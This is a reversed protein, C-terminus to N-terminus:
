LAKYLDASRLDISLVQSDLPIIRLRSHDLKKLMGVMFAVFSRKSKAKMLSADLKKQTAPSLNRGYAMYVHMPLDTFVYCDLSLASNMDALYLTLIEPNVYFMADIREKDLMVLMRRTADDPTVPLLKHQRVSGPLITALFHAIRLPTKLPFQLYGSKTCVASQAEYMPVSSFRILKERAPTKLLGLFANLQGQQLQFLGRDVSLEEWQPTVNADRFVESVYDILPGKPGHDTKSVVPHYEIYGVQITGAKAIRPPWLLLLLLYLYKTHSM